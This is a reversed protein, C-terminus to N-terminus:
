SKGNTNGGEGQAAYLQAALQDREAVVAFLAQMQLRQTIRSLLVADLANNPLNTQLAVISDRAADYQLSVAVISTVEMPVRPPAPATTQENSTAAKPALEHKPEAMVNSAQTIRRASPYPSCRKKSM